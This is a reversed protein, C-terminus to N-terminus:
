IGSIFRQIESRIPTFGLICIGYSAIGAFVIAALRIPGDITLIAETAVVVTSMVVSSGVMWQVENMPFKISIFRSLYSINVGAGIISSLATAIAAGAIGFTPILTINFAANAIISIISGRYGLQPKDIAFLTPSLTLHITRFVKEVLFIVLVLHGASFEAGYIIALADAGVMIGGVVAPIAFLLPPVLARELLSEIRQIDDSADWESIQPFIVTRVAGQIVMVVGAVRWAVEYVGIEQQTVFFGLIAVDLWGYVYGGASGIAAYGGYSLLSRAMPLTPRSPHTNSRIATWVVVLCWSVVFSWVIGYVGHGFELLIAGLVAWTAKQSVTIIATDGVRLEGNIVKLGLKGFQQITVSVILLLALDAGLYANIMSRFVFIGIITPVLLSGKLAIGTALVRGAHQRESLRKEVGSLLGIDSILGTIGVVAQFLFFPALGAAGLTQAFFAIAAFNLATGIFNASLIKAIATRIDM